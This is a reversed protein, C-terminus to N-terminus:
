RKHLFFGPTLLNTKEPFNALHLCTWGLIPGKGLFGNFISWFRYLYVGFVHEVVGFVINFNRKWFSKMARFAWFGFNVGGDNYVVYLLSTKRKWFEQAKGISRISKIKASKYLLIPTACEPFNYVRFTEYPLFFNENWFELIEFFIWYARRCSYKKLGLNFIPEM